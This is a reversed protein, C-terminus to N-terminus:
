SVCPAETCAAAACIAKGREVPQQTQVVIHGARSVIATALKTGGTDIALTASM